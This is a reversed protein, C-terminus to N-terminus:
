RSYRVRLGCVQCRFVEVLNDGGYGNSREFTYDDPRPDDFSGAVWVQTHNSATKLQEGRIWHKVADEPISDLAKREEDTLEPLDCVSLLQRSRSDAVQEGQQTEDTTM